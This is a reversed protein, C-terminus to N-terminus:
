NAIFYRGDADITYADHKKAVAEPVARFTGLHTYNPGFSYDDEQPLLYAQRQNDLYLICEQGNGNRSQKLMLNFAEKDFNYAGVLYSREQEGKYVGIVPVVPGIIDEIFEREKEETLETNLAFIILAPYDNVRM